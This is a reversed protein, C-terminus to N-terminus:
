AGMEIRVKKADAIAQVLAVHIRGNTACLSGSTLDPPGGDFATVTGGAARVVTAGGALDWVKLKREWYGDYTGDAVFCLDIAASGCRRVGRARLKVSIFEAFNNDPDSARDYPFGTAILAESIVPIESVRIPVDNRTALAFGERSAIAGHWELGLAPAVIVGLVPENGVVLGISVNYFPHGHVFNTTGDLPDIYFTAVPDGERKVHTGEEGIIHFPTAKTLRDRLLRESERDYETVLDIITRKGKALPRSRWGAHVLAAAERAANVAVDLIELLGDKTTPDMTM